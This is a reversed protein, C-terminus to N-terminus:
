LIIRREQGTSDILILSEKKGQAKVCVSFLAIAKRIVDARSEGTQRLSDVSSTLTSDFQFISSKM